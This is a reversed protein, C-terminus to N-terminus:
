EPLGALQLPNILADLHEQNRYPLGHAWRAVSFGPNRALLEKAAIRAEGEHGLNWLAAVLTSHATLWRPKEKLVQSAIDRAAIFDGLHYRARAEDVKSTLVM